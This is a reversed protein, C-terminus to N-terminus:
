TGDLFCSALCLIILSIFCASSFTGNEQFEQTLSPSKEATHLVEEVRERKREMKSQKKEFCNTQQSLHKCGTNHDYAFTRM